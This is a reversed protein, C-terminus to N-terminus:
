LGEQRLKEVIEKAKRSLKNPIDIKIKIMLDGRRGQTSVGKGKVKLTEGHEIGAPIKVKLKGDLTDVQYTAGLLADTLKVKLDMLVNSGEKRFIKDSQVHIRIYLDGPMGDKVWEGGGTLRIMEGNNIGGPIKITVEDNKRQVGVGGCTKCKDKPTKGKGNCADCERVTNFTGLVSQKTEQVKGVGNCKSCSTWETNKAGGDGGCDDCAGTKTLAIKRDAGFVSEKFSIQLDISIDRGKKVRTRGGGFFDGFIDGMDFDMGAANFGGFGGGGQQPDASGYTDYQSRKKDDSLITYAENIEKFKAEDGGEKDPHYQHAKKRFAKKIEDKSAGKEVGLVQYYDKTM